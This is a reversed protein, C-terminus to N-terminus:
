RYRPERHRDQCCPISCLAILKEALDAATFMESLEEQLEEWETSKAKTPVPIPKPKKHVIPQQKVEPEQEEEEAPEEPISDVMDGRLHKDYKKLQARYSAVPNIQPRCREVERFAHSLSYHKCRMLYAVVISASRNVGYACHVLISAKDDQLVADMFDFCRGALRQKAFRRHTVFDADDEPYPVHEDNFLDDDGADAIAVWETMVGNKQKGPMLVMSDSVNLVHTVGLPNGCRIVKEADDADGLFLRGKVIESM